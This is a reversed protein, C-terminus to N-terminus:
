ARRRQLNRTRRRSRRASRVGRLRRAMPVNPFGPCRTAVGHLAACRAVHQLVHLAAHSVAGCRVAFRRDTTRSGRCARQGSTCCTAACRRGWQAGNCKHAGECMCARTHTAFRRQDKASHDRPPSQAPLVLLLVLRRASAVVVVGARVTRPAAASRRLTHLPGKAEFLTVRLRRAFLLPALFSRRATQLSRQIRHRMLSGIAFAWPRLLHSIRSSTSSGILGIGFM